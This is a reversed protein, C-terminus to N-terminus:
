SVIFYISPKCTICTLIWDSWFDLKRRFILARFAVFRCVRVIYIITIVFSIYQFEKQVM